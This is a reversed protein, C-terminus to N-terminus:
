RCAITSVFRYLRKTMNCNYQGVAKLEQQKQKIEALIEDGEENEGTDESTIM